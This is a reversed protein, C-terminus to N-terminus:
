QKVMCTKILTTGPPLMGTAFLRTSTKKFSNAYDGSVSWTHHSANQYQFAAQEKVPKETIINIVGAMADAGYLSSSPGKVIEIQKINGTAIRGLKLIGANRGVLPEGDILILTYAPDLGQMQIGAGFVNPYGSLSIGLPSNVVTLGTQEQLIDQLRLSGTAKIMQATIVQTPIAVNGLRRETKTATIVVDDLQKLLTSDTVQAEAVAHLLACLVTLLVAPKLMFVLYIEKLMCYIADYLQQRNVM